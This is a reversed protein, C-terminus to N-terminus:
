RRSRKTLREVIQEVRGAQLRLGGKPLEHGHAAGSAFLLVKLEIAREYAQRKSNPDVPRGSRGGHFRCKGGNGTGALKCPLGTQRSKGSCRPLSDLVRRAEKM